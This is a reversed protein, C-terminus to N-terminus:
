DDEKELRIRTTKHRVHKKKIEPEKLTVEVDYEQEAYACVIALTTALDCIMNNIAKEGGHEAAVDVLKMMGVGVEEIITHSSGSIRVTGTKGDIKIM